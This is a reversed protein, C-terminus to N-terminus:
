NLDRKYLSYPNKNHQSIVLDPQLRDMFVTDEIDDDLKFKTKVGLSNSTIQPITRNLLPRRDEEEKILLNETSKIEGFAHKGAGIQFTEPNSTYNEVLVANRVKEPNFYTEYVKTNRHESSGAIGTYASNESIIEKQTTKMDLGSVGSRYAASKGVDFTTRINGSNDVKLTTEKMTAKASDALATKFGMSSRGRNIIQGKNGRQTDYNVLTSKGFDNVSKNGTANRIYDNEFNMRKPMQVLREEKEPILDDSNMLRTRQTTQSVEGIAGGMYELNYDQRSTHKLNTLYDEDAKANIYKGTTKLLHDQTQEYYTDPRHKFAKSQVGRVEGRQGAITRGDYSEKPKNAVRLENVDKFSPRINNDITGSIPAAIREEVFPKDNQKYLSPIYRDIDVSTTFM